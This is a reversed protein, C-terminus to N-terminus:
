SFPLYVLAIDVVLNRLMSPQWTRCAPPITSGVMLQAVHCTYLTILSLKGTLPRNLIQPVCAAGLGPCSKMMMGDTCEVPLMRPRREPM